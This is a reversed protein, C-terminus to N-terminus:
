LSPIGLLGQLRSAVLVQTDILSPQGKEWIVPLALRLRYPINKYFTDRIDRDFDVTGYPRVSVGARNSLFRFRGDWIVSVDKELHLDALSAQNARGKALVPDRGIAFESKDKVVMAGGLTAGSFDFSNMAACLDQLSQRMIPGATGSAARLLLGLLHPPPTHTTKIIGHEDVRVHQTVFDRMYAREVELGANLDRATALLDQRLSVHTKLYDRARIRTFGRNLNSPDEVWTLHHDQNYTRLDTRTAELLPRVLAVEALEPWVPAYVREAIGAAGRWDTKRAYRMLLTEAQDDQTHGTLLETIGAERCVQGMLGYRAKRAKEQIGSQPNVHRWILIRAELGLEEAFRKAKMAEQASGERLAHDVILVLPNQERLMHVLATSDGGGSFAVAFRGSPILTRKIM